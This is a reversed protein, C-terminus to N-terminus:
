FSPQVRKTLSFKMRVALVPTASCYGYLRFLSTSIKNLYGFYHIGVAFCYACLDVYFMMM